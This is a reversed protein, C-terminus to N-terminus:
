MSMLVTNRRNAKHHTRTPRACILALSADRGSGASMSPFYPAKFSHSRRPQARAPVSPKSTFAAVIHLLIHRVEDRPLFSLASLYETGTDSDEPGLSFADQEAIHCLVVPNSL